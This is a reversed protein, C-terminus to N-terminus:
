DSLKFGQFLDLFAIYTETKNIDYQPRKKVNRITSYIGKGAKEEITLGFEKYFAKLQPEIKGPQIAHIEGLPEPDSLVYFATALTNAKGNFTWVGDKTYYNDEFIKKVIKAHEPNRFLSEFTIPTKEQKPKAIFEKLNELENINPDFKYGSIDRCLRKYEQWNNLKDHELIKVWEILEKAIKGVLYRNVPEKDLQYFLKIVEGSFQMKNYFEKNNENRM